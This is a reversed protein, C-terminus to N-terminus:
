INKIIFISCLINKRPRLTDRAFCFFCSKQCFQIYKKVIFLAFRLFTLYRGASILFARTKCKFFPKMGAYLYRGLHWGLYSRPRIEMENKQQKQEIVIFILPKRISM